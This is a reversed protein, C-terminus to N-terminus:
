ISQSPFLRFRFSSWALCGLLAVSEVSRFLFALLNSWRWREFSLVSGLEVKRLSLSLIFEFILLPRFPFFCLVCVGLGVRSPFSEYLSIIDFQNSSKGEWKKKAVFNPSLGQGVKSCVRAQAGLLTTFHYFSTRTQALAFALHLLLTKRAGGRAKLLETGPRNYCSDSRTDLFIQFFKDVPNGCFKRLNNRSERRFIRIITYM